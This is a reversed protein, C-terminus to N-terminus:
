YIAGTSPMELLGRVWSRGLEVLPVRWTGCAVEGHSPQEIEGSTQVRGNAEFVRVADTVGGRGSARLRRWVWIRTGEEDSPLDDGPTGIILPCLALLVAM